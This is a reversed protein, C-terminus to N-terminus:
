FALKVKLHSFELIFVAFLKMLTDNPRQKIPIEKDINELLIENIFIM